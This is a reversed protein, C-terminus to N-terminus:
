ALESALAKVQKIEKLLEKLKNLHDEIKDKNKKIATL